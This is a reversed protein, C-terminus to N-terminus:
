VSVAYRLGNTEYSRELSVPAREGSLTFLHGGHARVRLTMRDGLHGGSRLQEFREAPIQIRIWETGIERGGCRVFVESGSYEVHEVPLRLAGAEEAQPVAELAEARVALIFQGNAAGAARLGLRSRGARLDENAITVPIENIPVSGVFRAVSLLRPAGYIEGPSGCQM